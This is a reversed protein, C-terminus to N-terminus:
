VCPLQPKSASGPLNKEAADLIAGGTDQPHLLFAISTVIVALPEEM